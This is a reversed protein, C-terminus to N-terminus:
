VFVICFFCTYDGAKIDKGDEAIKIVDIMMEIEEIGDTM